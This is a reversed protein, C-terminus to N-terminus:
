YRLSIRAPILVVQTTHIDLTIHARIDTGRIDSCSTNHPYTAIPIVHFPFEIINRFDLRIDLCLNKDTDM